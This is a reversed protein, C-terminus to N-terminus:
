PLLGAFDRCVRCPTGDKGRYKPPPHQFCLFRFPGDTALVPSHRKYEFPIWPFRFEIEVFMSNRKLLGARYKLIRERYGNGIWAMGTGFGAEEVDPHSLMM